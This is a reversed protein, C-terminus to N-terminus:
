KDFFWCGRKHVVDGWVLSLIFCMLYWFAYAVGIAENSMKTNVGFPNFIPILFLVFIMLTVMFLLVIKM